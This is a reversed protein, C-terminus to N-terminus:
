FSVTVSAAVYQAAMFMLEKDKSVIASSNQRRLIIGAPKILQVKFSYFMSCDIDSSRVFFNQVDPAFSPLWHSTCPTYAHHAKFWTM